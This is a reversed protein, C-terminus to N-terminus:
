WTRFTAEGWQVSNVFDIVAILFKAEGGGEVAYGCSKSSDPNMLFRGLAIAIRKRTIEDGGRFFGFVVECM